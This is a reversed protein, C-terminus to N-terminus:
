ARRRRGASLRGTMFTKGGETLYVRDGPAHLYTIDSVGEEGGRGAQFKRNLVNNCVELGHNSNTPPIFKRRERANLGNERM